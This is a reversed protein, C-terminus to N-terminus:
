THRINTVTSTRLMLWDVVDNYERALATQRSPTSASGAHSLLDLRLQAQRHVGPLAGGEAAAPQEGRSGTECITIPSICFM